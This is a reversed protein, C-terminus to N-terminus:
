SQGETPCNRRGSEIQLFMEPSVRIETIGCGTAIFLAQCMLDLTTDVGAHLYIPSASILIHAHFKQLNWDEPPRNATKGCVKVQYEKLEPDGVFPVQNDRSAAFKNLYTM